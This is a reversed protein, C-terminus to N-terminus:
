GGQGDVKVQVVNEGVQEHQEADDAAVAFLRCGCIGQGRILAVDVEGQDIGCGLGPFMLLVGIM